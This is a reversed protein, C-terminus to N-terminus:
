HAGERLSVAKHGFHFGVLQAWGVYENSVFDEEAFTAPFCNELMQHRGVEAVTALARSVAWFMAKLATARAAMM